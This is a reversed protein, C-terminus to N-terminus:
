ISYTDKLRKIENFITNAYYGLPISSIIIVAYSAMKDFTGAIATFVLAVISGLAVYRAFNLHRLVELACIKRNVKNYINQEKNKTNTSQNNTSYKPPPQPPMEKTGMMDRFFSQFEQNTIPKESDHKTKKNKLEKLKKETELIENNIENGAM